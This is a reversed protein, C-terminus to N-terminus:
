AKSAPGAESGWGVYRREFRLLPLADRGVSHLVRGVVVQHDASEHLAVVECVISALSGAVVPVDCVLAPADGPVRAAGANAFRAGVDEQGTALYNIAFRGTAAIAAMTRSAAWLCALMTPPSLSVSTVSTATMGSYGSPGAATVVAVPVAIRRLIRRLHEPREDPWEARPARPVTEAGGSDHRLESARTM